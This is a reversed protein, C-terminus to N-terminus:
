DVDLSKIMVGLRRDDANIGLNKPIFCRQLNLVAQYDDDDVLDDVPLTVYIRHEGPEIITFERTAVVTERKGHRIEADIRLPQARVDPPVAGVIFSFGHAGLPLPEQYLGATWGDPTQARYVQCQVDVTFPAKRFSAQAEYAAAATIMIALVALAAGAYRHVGCCVRTSTGKASGPSEPADSWAYLLSVLAATILLNDRVLLSHAYINALFVSALAALAPVLVKWDRTRRLPSALMFLFLAFGILGNEVLIQLFYNHANEGNLTQSLFPSASFAFNASSRYFEGQGLGLLPYASFMRLGAMFIEPRRALEFNVAELDAFGRSHALSAMWGMWAENFAYFSVGVAVFTGITMWALIRLARPANRLLWILALMALLLIALALSSKSKSLVLAVSALPIALFPILRRFLRSSTQTWYGLLGCVGLLMHGAFAHIDPQFGLATYGLRDNRFVLQQASLGMGTASQACGIVAAVIVGWVLPKFVVDNRDAATRLAPVMTAMCAFAAGYAVWDVLPRYDDHWGISRFHLLSQFLAILNFPSHTQSLNRSIALAVSLTVFLLVAGAQWPLAIVPNRAIGPAPRPLLHHTIAGLFLGAALDFGASDIPFIRGYGLFAQIQFTLNPLLPALFICLAIGYRPQIVTSVLAAAFCVTSITVRYFAPKALATDVTNVLIVLLTLGIAVEGARAIVRQGLNMAVFFGRATM